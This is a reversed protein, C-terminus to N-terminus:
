TPPLHEAESPTGEAQEREAARAAFWDQLFAGLAFPFTFALEGAASGIVAGVLLGVFLVVGAPRPGLWGTAALGLLAGPLGGLAGLFWAVLWGGCGALWGGRDGFFDSRGMRWPLFMARWMSLVGELWMLVYQRAYRSFQM